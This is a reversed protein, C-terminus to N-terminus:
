SPEDKARDLHVVLAHVAPGPSAGIEAMKAAWRDCSPREHYAGVDDLMVLLGCYPCTNVRKGETM